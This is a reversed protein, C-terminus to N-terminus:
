QVVSTPANLARMVFNTIDTALKVLETGKPLEPFYELVFGNILHAILKAEGDVDTIFIDGNKIGIQLVEEIHSHAKLPLFGRAHKEFQKRYHMYYKLVAVVEEAHKFQFVVRQYLMDNLTDVHPLNNRKIGLRANVTHFMDKLLSDKSPYYHYLASLSCGMEAAFSRMSLGDYGSKAFVHTCVSIIEDRQM